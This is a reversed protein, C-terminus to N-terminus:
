HDTPQAQALRVELAKDPEFDRIRLWTAAARLREDLPRSRAVGIHDAVETLAASPTLGVLESDRLSVGEEDALGAVADWVQEMSRRGDETLLDDCRGRYRTGGQLAGHRLLDVTLM